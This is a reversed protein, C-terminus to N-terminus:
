YSNSGALMVRLTGIVIDLDLLPSFNRIYFLDYRLKRETDEISAGYRYNIQAWGTIGPKVRHREDYFPIREALLKVFAPREPRPGVFSMDGRLVNFLQPLEDIRTKRLLRGLRTVRPDNAQAWVPGTQAEADERMTRFKYLLFTRGREGTREQRFLVPGRSDLKIAAAVLALFPALAALALASLAAGVARKAFRELGTRELGGGFLVWSPTLREILLRGTVFEYVDAADGVRLGADRLAVLAAVPLPGDADRLAVAVDSAGVEAAISVVADVPGLVPLDAFRAGRPLRDDLFGVVDCRVGKADRLVEALRGGISSAGVILVREPPGVRRVARDAAARFAALLGLLLAAFATFVPRGPDLAPFLYFGLVLLATALGVALALRVLLEQLNRITVFRYLDYLHLAYVIPGGLALVEVVFRAFGMQRAAFPHALGAGALALAVVTLDGLLLAARARAGYPCLVTGGGAPPRLRRVPVPAREGFDTPASAIRSV